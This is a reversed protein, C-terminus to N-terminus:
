DHFTRASRFTLFSCGNAEGDTDAHLLGLVSLRIKTLHVSHLTVVDKSVTKTLM